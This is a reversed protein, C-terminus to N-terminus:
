AGREQFMRLYAGGGGDHLVVFWRERFINKYRGRLVMNKRCKGRRM